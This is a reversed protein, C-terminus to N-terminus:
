ILGSVLHVLKPYATPRVKAHQLICLHGSILPSLGILSLFLQNKAFATNATRKSNFFALIQQFLLKTEQFNSNKFNMINKPMATLNDTLLDIILLSVAWFTLQPVLNKCSLFFLKLLLSLCFTPNPDVVLKFFDYCIM